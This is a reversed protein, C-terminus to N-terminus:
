GHNHRPKRPPKTGDIIWQPVGLSKLLNRRAEATMVFSNMAEDSVAASKPLPGFVFPFLDVEPIAGGFQKNISDIFQNAIFAYGFATPHVGDYSFVGGTLFKSTYTIGGVAIGNTSLDRLLANADVLAAGKDSAAKAIIQNYAVVYDHITAVEAASLVESDALPQGTGNGIGVPIGRGSAIDVSATLLVFDGAQLPGNPGIFPVPAGNVIVPQNTQPNVIIRPITTVFPISTVDPINAIAMKANTSAIANVVATYDAQFQEVPTLTVGPIVIGSTAAGLVDNNGIWLTVFTPKLSLGQQLQTFGLKRLVLDTPDSASTSETKTLLDHLKAGPIAMNNYPRPLNLNIPQGAGPTPAIVANPLIQQLRLIGPLGPESVLPQEFGTTKGTAQRYILAPYSNVQFTRNISGSSFGATLSDGFAVYTSFNASGTNPQAFAAGAVLLALALACALTKLRHM